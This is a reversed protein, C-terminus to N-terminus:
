ARSIKRTQKKLRNIKRRVIRITRRDNAQRAEERRTKLEVIKAKLTGATIAGEAVPKRPAKEEKIGRAEKIAALLEAKKMAHVGVLDTTEAAVARLEKVTMRDLDEEKGEQKEEASM